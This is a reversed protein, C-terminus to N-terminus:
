QRDFTEVAFGYEDDAWFEGPDIMVEAPLGLRPHFTADIRFADDDVASQLLGFLEDVTDYESFVEPAMGSGPQVSVPVGNRVEIVAKGGSWAGRLRVTMRYDDTGRVDWMRLATALEMPEGVVGTPDGDCAALVALCAAFVCKRGSLKM